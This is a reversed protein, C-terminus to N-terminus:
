VTYYFYIVGLDSDYLCVKTVTKRSVSWAQVELILNGKSSKHESNSNKSIADM